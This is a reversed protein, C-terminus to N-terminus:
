RRSWAKFTEANIITSSVHGCQIKSYCHLKYGARKARICFSIDEGFGLIPSFLTHDRAIIQKIMETRMLVCAFGSGDIEFLSDKPYDDYQEVFNEGDVGLRITKYICPNFPPRRRHVIGTIYDKGEIAKLMEALTDPEFVTDSDLWLIYDAGVDIAQQALKNRADYVLSNSFFSIVTEGTQKLSVLSRVFHVDLTDLCPIAILTKM